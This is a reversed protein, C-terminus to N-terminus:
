IKLFQCIIVFLIPLRPYLNTSQHYLNPFFHSPMSAQHYKYFFFFILKVVSFKSKNRSFKGKLKLPYIETCLNPVLDALYNQHYPASHQISLHGYVISHDHTYDVYMMQKHSVNSLRQARGLINSSSDFTLMTSCGYQYSSIKNSSM